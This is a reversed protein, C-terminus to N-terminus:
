ILKINHECLKYYMMVTVFIEVIVITCALGVAGFFYIMPFVLLFNLIASMVLVMSFDHQFGFAVLSQVGFINSLCVIFPLVNIIQLIIISQEYGDGMIIAVIKNSLLFVTLSLCLSIWGMRKVVKKLFIIAQNSSQKYLNAMHPFIANSIPTMCGKVGEILKNAASYCGVVYNDCLLGLIFVNSNTYLNIFLTSLFLDWGLRLKKIILKCSCKKFLSRYHFFLYSLSICGAIFPTSTLFIAALYADSEFKVLTFILIASSLRGIVNFLTIFKMKQIGQYYWIPTIANGVLAPMTCIIMMCDIYLRFSLCVLLLFIVVIILLAIKSFLISSFEVPIDEKDSKAIDRPATLNFGYNVVMVGYNIISQAFVVSGYGEAGLIRLLYPLTIFALIYESGNLTFLAFINKKIVNNM